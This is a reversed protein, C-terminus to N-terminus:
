SDERPWFLILLVGVLTVLGGTLDGRDPRDGDLIWGAVFSGAIFFGGYVAYVRGFSDSAQQLTPWFGYAVLVLSGVLAWWWPKGERVTQWVLWGGGIEFLGTIIFILITLFITAWNYDDSGDDEILDNAVSSPSKTPTSESM